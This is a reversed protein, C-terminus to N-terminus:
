KNLIYGLMFMILPLVLSYKEKVELKGWSPVVKENFVKFFLRTITYLAIWLFIGVMYWLWSDLIAVKYIGLVTMVVFLALMPFYCVLGGLLTKVRNISIMSYFCVAFSVLFGILIMVNFYDPVESTVVTKTNIKHKVLQVLWALLVITEVGSIAFYFTPAGWDKQKLRGWISNKKKRYNMEDVWEGVVYWNEKKMSNGKMLVVIKM